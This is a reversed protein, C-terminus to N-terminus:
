IKMKKNKHWKLWYVDPYDTALELDEKQELDEPIDSLPYDERFTKRGVKYEVKLRGDEEETKKGKAMCIEGGKTEKYRQELESTAFKRVARAQESNGKFLANTKASFKAVYKDKRRQFDEWDDKHIKAVLQNDVIISIIKGRCLPCELKAEQIKESCGKCTCMHRCPEFIETSPNDLCIVCDTERFVESM